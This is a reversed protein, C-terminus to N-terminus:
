YYAWFSLQLKNLVSNLITDLNKASTVVSSIIVYRPVKLQDYFKMQEVEAKKLESAKLGGQNVDM